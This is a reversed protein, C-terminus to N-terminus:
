HCEGSGQDLPTGTTDIFAWDYSGSRLFLALVGYKLLRVESNTKTSVFTRLRKGGTGAVFERIGNPDPAGAANQYAFREYDHDHGNIVVDANHRLLIDWLPRMNPENGHEGSSFLPHHWIAAICRKQTEALDTELWAQQAATPPNGDDSDLSVIHWEGIDFSYNPATGAFYAFYGAAGPTHYEHNGPSPKTRAKFVGWTPDYCNTYDIVRGDPYANDGATFVTAEPFMTAIVNATARANALDAGCNAIDGAGILVQGGGSFRARAATLQAPTAIPAPPVSACAAFLFGLPLWRLRM